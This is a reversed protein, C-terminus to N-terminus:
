SLHCGDSEAGTEALFGNIFDNYINININIYIIYYKM